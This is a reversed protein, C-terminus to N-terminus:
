HVASNKPNRTPLVFLVLLFTIPWAVFSLAYWLWFSYGKAYAFGAPLLGTMMMGLIDIGYVVEDATIEM